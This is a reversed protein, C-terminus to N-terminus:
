PGGSLGRLNSHLGISRGNLEVHPKDVNENRPDPSSVVGYSWVADEPIRLSPATVFATKPIDEQRVPIRFYNKKPYIKPFYSEKEINQFVGAPPIMPHPDFATLKKLQRYDICTQNSGDKKKVEVVLSAYPSNSRKYIGLNKIEELEDCLTQM